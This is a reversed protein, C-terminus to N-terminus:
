AISELNTGFFPSVRPKRIVPEDGVPKAEDLIELLDAVDVGPVSLSPIRVAQLFKNRLPFFSPRYDIVVHVVLMSTKRAAELVSRAAQGVNRERYMTSKRVVGKQIDLSLVATKVPDLNLNEM